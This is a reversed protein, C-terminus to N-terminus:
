LNEKFVFVFRRILSVNLEQFSDFMKFDYFMRCNNAPFFMNKKSHLLHHFRLNVIWLYFILYLYTM